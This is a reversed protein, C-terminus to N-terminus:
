KRMGVRRRRAATIALPEANKQFFLEGDIGDLARVLAV